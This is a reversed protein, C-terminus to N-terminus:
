VNPIRRIGDINYDIVKDDECCWLRCNIASLPDRSLASDKTRGPGHASWVLRDHCMGPSLSGDLDHRRCFDKGGNGGVLADFSSDLRRM